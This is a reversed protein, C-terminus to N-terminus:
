HWYHCLFHDFQTFLLSGHDCESTHSYSCGCACIPQPDLRAHPYKRPDEPALPVDSEIIDNLRGILQSPLQSPDSNLVEYSLFLAELLLRVDNDDTKMLLVNYTEDM